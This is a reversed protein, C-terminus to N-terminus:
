RDFVVWYDDLAQAFKDAQEREHQTKSTERLRNLYEHLDTRVESIQTEYTPDLSILFYKNTDEEVLATWRQIELMTKASNLSISSLEINVRQMENITSRQYALIVIALLTLVIFGLIFKSSVKM